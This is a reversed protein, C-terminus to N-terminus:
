RALLAIANLDALLCYNAMNGQVQNVIIGFAFGAEFDFALAPQLL